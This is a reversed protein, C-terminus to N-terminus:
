VAECGAEQRLVMCRLYAVGHEALLQQITFPRM